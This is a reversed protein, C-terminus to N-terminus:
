FPLFIPMIAKNMRFRSDSLVLLYTLNYILGVIPDTGMMYSYVISKLYDVETQELYQSASNIRSTESDSLESMISRNSAAQHKYNTLNNIYSLNNDSSSSPNSKRDLFSSFNDSKNSNSNLKTEYSSIIRDKTAITSNLQKILEM